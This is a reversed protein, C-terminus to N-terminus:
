FRESSAFHGGEVVALAVGLVRMPGLCLNFPFPYHFAQLRHESAAMSISSLCQHEGGMYELILMLFSYLVVAEWADRVVLMVSRGDGRGVSLCLFSFFVYIPAIVIIRLIHSQLHPTTFNVLHKYANRFTLAIVFVALFMSIVTPWSTKIFQQTADSQAGAAPAATVDGTVAAALRASFADM